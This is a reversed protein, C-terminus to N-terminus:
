ASKQKKKAWIKDIGLIHKPRSDEYLITAKLEECRVKIQEETWDPHRERVTMEQYTWLKEYAERLNIQAESENYAYVKRKPKSKGEANIEEETLRPVEKFGTSKSVADQWEQLWDRDSSDPLVTKYYQDREKMLNDEVVKYKEELYQKMCSFIIPADLRTLEGYEGMRIKKFCLMFDELTENKYKEILDEVLMKLQQDNLNWKLNLNLVLTTLQLDLAAAIENGDVHRVLERLPM